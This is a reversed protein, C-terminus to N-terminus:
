RGNRLKMGNRLQKMQNTNILNKVLVGIQYYKPKKNNPVTYRGVFYKGEGKKESEILLMFGNGIHQKSRSDSIPLSEIERYIEKDVFAHVSSQNRHHDYHINLHNLQNLEQIKAFQIEVPFRDSFSFLLGLLIQFLIVSHKM